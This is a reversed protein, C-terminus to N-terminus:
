SLKKKIFNAKIKKLFEIISLRLKEDKKLVISYFIITGVGSIIIIFLPSLHFYWKALSVVALIPSSIVLFHWIIKLISPLTLGALNMFWFGYIAYLLGSLLSLLFFSIYINGLLGGVTISVITVVIGIANLFLSFEQKELIIMLYSAPITIFRIFILFSLIQAYVGAESWNMGFAVGFIEKGILGLLLFPLMGFLVLRQFLKKLLLTNEDKNQAGRQFYVEGISTGLLSMPMNLLRLGLSYYGIISQSFYYSLFYIPVQSTVRSLLNTWLIFMPFKRYRKIGALMYRWRISGKFLQFNERWVRRSLVLSNAVSGGIGGLILNLGSAHGSYGAGLVIGRETISQSIRASAIYGFRKNRMNWYRLSMYLGSLFVCIPVLWLYPRLEQANLWHAITKQGFFILLTTLGSVLVAFALCVGLMNSADKDSQTLMISLSYSMTALVAIPSAISNFLAEIGFAEPSYLRTVLPMVIIAIVQTVVPASAMTLVDHAFKSKPTIIKSEAQNIM